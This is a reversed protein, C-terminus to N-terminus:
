FLARGDGSFPGFCEFSASETVAFAYSDANKRIAAYICLFYGAWGSLGAFLCFLAAAAVRGGVNRFFLASAARLSLLFSGGYLARCLSIQAAGGQAGRLIKEASKRGDERGDKM